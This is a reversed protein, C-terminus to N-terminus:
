YREMCDIKEQGRAGTSSTDLKWPPYATSGYIYETPHNVVDNLIPYRGVSIEV